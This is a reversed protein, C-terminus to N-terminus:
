GPGNYLLEFDAKQLIAVKRIRQINQQMFHMLRKARGETARSYWGVASRSKRQLTNGDVVDLACQCSNRSLCLVENRKTIIKM